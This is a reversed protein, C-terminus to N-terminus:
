ELSFLCTHVCGPNLVSWGLPHIHFVHCLSGFPFWHSKLISSLAELLILMQSLLRFPGLFLACYVWCLPVCRHDYCQLPLISFTTLELGAQDVYCAGVYKL